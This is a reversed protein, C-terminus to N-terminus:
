QQDEKEKEQANKGQEASLNKAPFESRPLASIAGQLSGSAIKIREGLAQECHKLYDGDERV